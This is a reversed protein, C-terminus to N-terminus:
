MALFWWKDELFGVEERIVQYGICPTYKGGNSNRAWIFKDERNVLRVRSRHLQQIFNNWVLLDAELCIGIDNTTKWAQQFAISHLPDAIQHLFIIGQDQLNGVIHILFRHEGQWQGDLPGHVLKYSGIMELKGNYGIVLWKSCLSCPKGLFLCM